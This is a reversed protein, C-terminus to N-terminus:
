KGPALEQERCPEQLAAFLDASVIERLLVQDYDTKGAFGNEPYDVLNVEGGDGSHAFFLRRWATCELKYRRVLDDIGANVIQQRM